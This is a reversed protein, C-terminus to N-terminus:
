RRVIRPIICIFQFFSDSAFAIKIDIIDSMKLIVVIVIYYTYIYIYLRSVLASFFDFVDFLM